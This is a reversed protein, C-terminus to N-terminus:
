SGVQVNGLWEETEQEEEGEVDVFTLRGRDGYSICLEEGGEVDRVTKYVLLGREVDRRWGM